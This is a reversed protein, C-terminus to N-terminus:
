YSNEYQRREDILCEGCVFRDDVVYVPNEEDPACCCVDCVHDVEYM